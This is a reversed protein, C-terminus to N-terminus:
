PRVAPEPSSMAETLRSLKASYASLQPGDRALRKARTLHRLASDKDGLRWYAMALMFHFEQDDPASRLADEFSGKATTYDGRQYAMLGAKYLGIPTRPQVVSLRQEVALAEDLRGSRRLVAALNHLAQPNESEIRL